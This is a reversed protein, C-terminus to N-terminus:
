ADTAGKSVERLMSLWIALFALGVLAGVATLAPGPGAFGALLGQFLMAPAVALLAWFLALRAAFASGRGGLARAVGHSLGALAYFLLPAMFLLAFLNIGLLADLGPVQDPPTGQAEAALRGLHAERSLRPWQAVFMLGCAGMLVALARDERVGQGLKERIVARPARWARLIDQTVPM